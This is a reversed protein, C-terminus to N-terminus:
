DWDSAREPKALDFDAHTLGAFYELVCPPLEYMDLDRGDLQTSEWGGSTGREAFQECGSEFDEFTYTATYTLGSAPDTFDATRTTM